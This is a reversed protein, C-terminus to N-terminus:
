TCLGAAPQAPARHKPRTRVPRDHQLKLGGPDDKFPHGYISMTDVGAADVCTAGARQCACGNSEAQSCVVAPLTHQQAAAPTHVALRRVETAGGVAKADAGYSSQLMATAVHVHWTGTGTGVSGEVSERKSMRARHNRCAHRM